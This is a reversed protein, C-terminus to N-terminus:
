RFQDVSETNSNPALLWTVNFTRDEGGRIYREFVVADSTIGFPRLYTDILKRHTAVLNLNRIMSALSYVNVSQSM